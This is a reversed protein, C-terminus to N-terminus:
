PQVSDTELPGGQQIALRTCNACKKALIHVKYASVCAYPRETTVPMALASNVDAFRVLRTHGEIM